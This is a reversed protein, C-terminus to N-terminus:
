NMALFVNREEKVRYGHGRKRGRETIKNNSSRKGTEKDRKGKKEGKKQENKRAM